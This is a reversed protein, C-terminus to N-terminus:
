FFPSLPFIQMPVTLSLADTLTDDRPPKGSTWPPGMHAVILNKVLNLPCKHILRGEGLILRANCKLQCVTSALYIVMYFLAVRM